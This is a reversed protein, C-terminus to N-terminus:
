GCDSAAFATSENDNDTTQWSVAGQRGSLAECDGVVGLGM